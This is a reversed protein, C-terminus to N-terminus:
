WGAATGLPLLQELFVVLPEGHFLPPKELLDTHSSAHFTPESGSFTPNIKNLFTFRSIM